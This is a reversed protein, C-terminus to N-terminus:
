INKTIIERQRIKKKITTRIIWAVVGFSLFLFAESKFYIAFIPLVGMLLLMIEKLLHMEELYSAQDAQKETLSDVIAPKINSNRLQDTKSNAITNNTDPHTADISTAIVPLQVQFLSGKIRM